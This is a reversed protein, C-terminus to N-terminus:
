VKCFIAFVLSLYLCTFLVIAEFFLMRLPRMLTVTLMQKVGKKELEMPAFTSENGAVRRIKQAKRKLLRPAYTEPLFSIPM